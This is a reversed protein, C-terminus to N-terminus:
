IENKVGYSFKYVFYFMFAIGPPRKKFFSGGPGHLMRLFKKNFTTENTKQGRDETKKKLIV